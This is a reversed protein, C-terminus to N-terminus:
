EATLAVTVSGGGVFWTHHVPDALGCPACGALLLLASYPRMPDAYGLAYVPLFVLLHFKPQPSGGRAGRWVEVAVIGRFASGAEGCRGWM